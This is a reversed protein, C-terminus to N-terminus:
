LAVLNQHNLELPSTSREVLPLDMINSVPRTELYAYLTLVSIVIIASLFLLIRIIKTKPSPPQIDSISRRKMNRLDLKPM